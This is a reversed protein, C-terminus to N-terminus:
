AFGAYTSVASTVASIRSADIAAKGEREAAEARFILGEAEDQGVFLRSLMRYEGEANLDSLAKVIGASGTGGGSAAAVALARSYTFEKNREEEAIEHTAVAMRRKGAERYGRAEQEKLKEQQKGKYLQAGGTALAAIMAM